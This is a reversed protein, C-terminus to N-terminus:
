LLEVALSFGADTMVATSIRVERSFCACARPSHQFPGGEMPPIGTRGGHAGKPGEEM